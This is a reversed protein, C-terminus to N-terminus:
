SRRHLYRVAESDYTNTLVIVGLQQAADMEFAAFFGVSDGAHGVRTRGDMRHIGLGLGRGGDWDERVWHPRRMERLTALSLVRAPSEASETLLSVFSVM